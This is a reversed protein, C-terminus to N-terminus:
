LFRARLLPLDFTRGNFTVALERDALRDALVSLVAGEEGPHRMFYQRVVFHLPEDRTVTEFAGVGIM